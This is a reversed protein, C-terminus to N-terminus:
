SVGTLHAERTRDFNLLAPLNVCIFVSLYEVKAESFVLVYEKFGHYDMLDTDLFTTLYSPIWEM